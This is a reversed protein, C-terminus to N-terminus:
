IGFSSMAAVVLFGLSVVIPKDFAASVIMSLVYVAAVVRADQVM